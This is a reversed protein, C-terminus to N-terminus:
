KLRRPEDADDRGTLKDRAERLFKVLETATTLREWERRALGALGGEPPKMENRFYSVFVAGIWRTVVAQVVGQLLGGAVTGIGPATKLVSAIGSSVAPAAASVGLIAILNKGLEGLLKVVAEMDMDQRYVRALELTMKTTIASGALLDLVPMPSLAAAGAAGWTYRDVIKWAQADLAAKVQQHSDEVLGRSRLLLNALLLDQGDRRVIHMLKDALRSIDPPVDIVEDEERGGALVRVRTRKTPLSRVPVFDEDNVLGGLQSRLQGQLSELDRVNYWDSKNLCVVIRKEMRALQEVLKHEADRLPGDVVMLVLDADKAATAAHAIHEAGDVEGLGPTDVLIIQDDDRWRIEQRQVTTGGKVDSQFADRGALANLLSSKGSSITGFAVLELRQAARKEDLHETLARLRGRLSPDLGEDRQLRRIDDLNDDIEKRREDASLESPNRSGSARRQRKRVTAQWLKWVIAGALGFIIAAGLGVVIFYAVTWTTGYKSIKEYQELVHPPVYILLFGVALIAAALALSNTGSPLKM